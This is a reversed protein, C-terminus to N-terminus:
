LNHLVEKEKKLLEIIEEYNKSIFESPKVARDDVYFGKFGCWPKGFYIEDFPIQNKELWELIIKATKANIKGLNSKYTRMNRSTYLIIYFGKNKYEKIKNVIKLNPKLKSYDEGEEKNKCLVGDVDIVLIKDQEM